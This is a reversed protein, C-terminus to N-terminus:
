VGAGFECLSLLVRLRDRGVSRVVTFVAFLEGIANIVCYIAFLAVAVGITVGPWALAAVGVATALLVLFALDRALIDEEATLHVDFAGNTPAIRAVMVRFTGVLRRRRGPGRM